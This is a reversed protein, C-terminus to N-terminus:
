VAVSLALPALTPTALPAVYSSACSDNAALGQTMQPTSVTATGTRARREGM